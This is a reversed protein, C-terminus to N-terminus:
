YKITIKTVPGYSGNRYLPRLLYTYNNNPKINTDKIYNTNVPLHRLVTPKDNNKAKYIILELADPDKFTKWFLEIYHEKRNVEARLGKIAKQSNNKAPTKIKLVPAAKSILGSQDIAKITYSYQTHPKIKKDTWTVIAPTKKQQKLTYILQWNNNNEKRYLEHKAVDSSSSNAWTLEVGKKTIKYTKFVPQAPPIFDPKQLALIDSPESQNYHKDVATIKYFVKPNLDHVGISDYYVTAKHPSVTIQSYEENLNNGRYIRYGLMDKEQNAQWKLTVIGLSDIKGKLGIPKVPPISDIPQVFAPLSTKEDGNNGVATITIYNAADLKNYTYSRKEPPIKSEIIKYEGDIQDSKKLIFGTIDKNAKEPFKWKLLVSTDNLLKKYYINPTYKLFPKGMGSVIKSPPGIEGFATKGKIRYYYKVNNQITDLYFARGTINKDMNNLMTMPTNHLPKFTKGDTSREIYYNNYLKQLSKFDWSLKVIGDSFAAYLELPKPLDFYESLGTYVGGEKVKLISEPILSKIKYLYTENPKATTDIFGLGAKLAVNFDQEAAYMGWTFRQQQENSQSVIASLEDMGSVDFNEGYLAQAMIAAYDNHQIIERWSELSDPKFVGMVITDRQSLLKQDRAVTIRTLQYGYKNALPWDTAKNITWRLLIQKKQTPRAVIVLEAFDTKNIVTQKQAIIDTALLTFLVIYIWIKQHM